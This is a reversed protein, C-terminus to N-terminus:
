WYLYMCSRRQTPANCPLHLHKLPPPPYVAIISHLSGCCSTAPLIRTVTSQQTHRIVQPWPKLVRKKGDPGV